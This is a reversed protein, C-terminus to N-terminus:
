RRMQWLVMVHAGRFEVSRGVGKNMGYEMLLLVIRPRNGRSDPLHLRRVLQSRDEVYRPRGVFVEPVCTDRRHTGDRASPTSSSCSRTSIPRSWVQPRPLVPSATAARHTAGGHATRAPGDIVIKKENDSKPNFSTHIDYPHFTPRVPQPYPEHIRQEPNSM